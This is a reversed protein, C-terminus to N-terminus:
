STRQADLWETLASLFRKRAQQQDNPLTAILRKKHEDMEGEAPFVESARVPLEMNTEGDWELAPFGLTTLPKDFVADITLWNGDVKVKLFDHYDPIHKGQFDALADPWPHIPFQGFDHMAFWSQVDIGLAELLLKLLAHKGSCTGKRARLVDLPNRSGIDGYAIDRVFEYAAVPRKKPSLKTFREILGKFEASEEMCGTYRKM